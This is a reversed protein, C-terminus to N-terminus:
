SVIAGIKKHMFVHPIAKFIYMSSIPQYGSKEYFPIASYRAGLVLTTKHHTAAIQQAYNLVQKGLGKSQLLQTVAMQCLQFTNQDVNRLTCCAVLSNYLFGGILLDNKDQQRDEATLYMGFPIRLCQNRLRIMSQYNETNWLITTCCLM